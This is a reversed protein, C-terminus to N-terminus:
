KEGAARRQHARTEIWRRRQVVMVGAAAVLRQPHAVALGYPPQKELRTSPFGKPRGDSQSSRCGDSRSSHALNLLFMEAWCPEGGGDDAGDRGMEEATTADAETNEDEAM